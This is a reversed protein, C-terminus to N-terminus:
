EDDFELISFWETDIKSVGFNIQSCFDTKGDNEVISIIEKIKDDYDYSELTKKIESDKPVVLMVKTPLEKQERISAIAKAFYDKENENLRHVPIITTVTNSM